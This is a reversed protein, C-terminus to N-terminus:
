FLKKITKLKSCDIYPVKKLFFITSNSFDKFTPESEFIYEYSPENEKENKTLCIIKYSNDSIFIKLNKKNQETSLLNSVKESNANIVLSSINSIYSILKLVQEESVPLIEGKSDLINSSVIVKDSM